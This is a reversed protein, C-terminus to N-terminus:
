LREVPRSRDDRETATRGKTREMEVGKESRRGGGETKTEDWGERLVGNKEARVRSGDWWM